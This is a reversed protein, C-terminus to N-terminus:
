RDDPETIEEAKGLRIASELVSKDFMVTERTTLNRTEWRDGADAIVKITMGAIEFKRGIM